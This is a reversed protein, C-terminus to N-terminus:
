KEPGAMSRYKSALRRFVKEAPKTRGAEADACGRRISADFATLQDIPTCRDAEGDKKAPAVAWERFQM